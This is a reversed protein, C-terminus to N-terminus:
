IEAQIQGRLALSALVLVHLQQEPGVAGVEVLDEGLDLDEDVHDLVRVLEDGGVQVADPVLDDLHAEENLHAGQDHAEAGDDGAYEPHVQGVVHLVVGEGEERHAEWDHHGHWDEKSPEDFLIVLEFRVRGTRLTEWKQFVKEGVNIVQFIINEVFLDLSCLKFIGEFLDCSQFNGLLLQLVQELHDVRVLVTQDVQLVLQDEVSRLPFLLDEEWLEQLSIRGLRRGNWVYRLDIEDGFCHFIIAKVNTQQQPPIWIMKLQSEIMM